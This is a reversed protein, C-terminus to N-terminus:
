AVPIGESSKGYLYLGVIILVVALLYTGITVLTDGVGQLGSKIGFPDGASTAAAGFQAQLSDQLSKDWQKGVATMLVARTGSKSGGLINDGQFYGAKDLADMMTDVDANTIMKGIPFKVIDNWAGLTPTTVDDAAKGPNAETTGSKLSDELFSTPNIMLGKSKDWLGFHLHAGVFEAGPINSQGKSNVGGTRGVYGILQGKSVHQGKSVTFNRLHAYQTAKNGGININVVNGGGCAWANGCHKDLRADSAYEVVGSAVAYVPTGEKASFDIGNHGSADTGTGSFGRSVGFASGFVKHALDLLTM